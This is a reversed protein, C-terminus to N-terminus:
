TIFLESSPAKGAGHAAGVEFFDLSPMLIVLAVFTVEFAKRHLVNLPTGSFQCWIIRTYLPSLSRTLNYKLHLCLFQLESKLFLQL